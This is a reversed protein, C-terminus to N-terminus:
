PKIWGIQYSKFVPELNLRQFFQDVLFHKGMEETHRDDVVIM